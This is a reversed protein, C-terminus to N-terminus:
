ARLASRRAASTWTSTRRRPASSRRSPARSPPWRPSTRGTGGFVFFVEAREGFRERFLGAATETYADDGYAVAHGHNASRLADMVRPHVGANNDSAFGRKIQTMM